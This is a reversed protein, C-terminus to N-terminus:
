SVERSASETQIVRIIQPVAEGAGPGIGGLAGCVFDPVSIHAGLHPSFLDDTLLIDQLQDMAAAAATGFQGISLIAAVKVDVNNDLLLPAIATAIKQEEGNRLNVLAKVSAERVEPNPSALLPVVDDVFASYLSPQREIWSLALLQQDTTPNNLMSSVPPFRLRPKVEVGVNPDDDLELGVFDMYSNLEQASEPVRPSIEVVPLGWRLSVLDDAAGFVTAGDGGPVLVNVVRSATWNKILSNSTLDWLYLESKIAVVAISKSLATVAPMAHLVEISTADEKHMEFYREALPRNEQVDWAAITGDFATFFMIQGDPTISVDIASAEAAGPREFRYEDVVRGSLPEWFRVTGPEYAGALLTGSPSMAISGSATRDIKNARNGSAADWIRIAPWDSDTTAVIAPSGAIAMDEFMGFPGKLTGIQSLSNADRLDVRGGQQIALLPSASALAFGDTDVPIQDLVADTESDRKEFGFGNSEFRTKGDATIALRFPKGSLLTESPVEPPYWRRFTGDTSGSLLTGEPGFAVSRIAGSHGELRALARGTGIDWIVILGDEDGSALRSGDSSFAMARVHNKHALLRGQVMGSVPDWLLISCDALLGHDNGPAVAVVDRSPSQEAAWVELWPQSTPYGNRPNWEKVVEGTHVDQTWMRKSGVWGLIPEAGVFNPSIAAPRCDRSSWRWPAPVSDDIGIAPVAYIEDGSATFDVTQVNLTFQGLAFECRPAGSGVDWVKITGDESASVIADAKHDFRVRVVDAPHKGLMKLLRNTRLDWLHVSDGASATAGLGSGWRGAGTVALSGDASVDVSQIAEISGDLFVTPRLGLFRFRRWVGEKAVEINQPNSKVTNLVRLAELLAAGAAYPRQDNEFAVAEGVLRQAAETLAEYQSKRAARFFDVAVVGLLTVVLLMCILSRRQWLLQRSRRKEREVEEYLITVAADRIGELIRARLQVGLNAREGDPCSALAELDVAVRQANPWRQRLEKPVWREGHTTIIVPANERNSLWWDLERYVWDDEDLRSYAGPTCVFIFTRARQLAPAHVTTWDPVAPAVQDFYISVPPLDAYGEPKFPLRADRLSQYVYDAAAWGDAQRYCIFIPWDSQGPISVRAAM